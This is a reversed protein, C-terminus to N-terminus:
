LLIVNLLVLECVEIILGYMDGNLGGYRKYFFYCLTLTTILTALLLEVHLISFLCVYSVTALLQTKSFEQKALLGMGNSIYPFFYISVVAGFRAFMLVYLLLFFNEVHLITSAKLILFLVTFIMGMGGVHSDKMVHLAKQKHVFLGDITDSFGDLHLGGTLVVWLGLTLITIHQAPFLSTTINHFLYLLCGLIGGVLPYFMVAYGNIGKFFHHVKFFPLTSLMSVSLAFGQLIKM